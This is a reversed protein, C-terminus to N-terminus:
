LRMLKVIIHSLSTKKTNTANTLRQTLHKERIQINEVLIQEVGTDAVNEREIGRLIGFAQTNSRKMTEWRDRVGRKQGKVEGLKLRPVNKQNM